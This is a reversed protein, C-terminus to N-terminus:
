TSRRSRPLGTPRRTSSCGRASPVGRRQRRASSAAAGARLGGPSVDGRERGAASLTTTALRSRGSDSPRRQAASRRRVGCGPSRSRPSEPERPRRPPPASRAPWPARQTRRPGARGRGPACRPLRPPRRRPRRTGRRRSRPRDPSPPPARGRNASGGHVHDGALEEGRLQLGLGLDQEEAVRVHVAAAEHGHAEEAALGGRLVPREVGPPHPLPPLRATRRLAKARKPPNRSSRPRPVGARPPSSRNRSQCAM